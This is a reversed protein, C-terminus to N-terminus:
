VVVQGLLADGLLRQGLAVGRAQQDEGARVRVDGAKYRHVHGVLRHNCHDVFCLESLKVEVFERDGM